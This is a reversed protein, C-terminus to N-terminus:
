LHVHSVGGPETSIGFEHTADPLVIICRCRVTIGANGRAYAEKGEENGVRWRSTVEHGERRLSDACICPM